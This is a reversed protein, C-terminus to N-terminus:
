KSVQQRFYSLFQEFICCNRTSCLAPSVHATAHSLTVRGLVIVDYDDHHMSYDVSVAQVTLVTETYPQATSHQASIYM